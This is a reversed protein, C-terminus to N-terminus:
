LRENQIIASHGKFLTSNELYDSIDKDINSSFNLLSWFGGTNLSYKKENSGRLAVEQLGYFLISGIIISLIKRNKKVKNNHKDISDNHSQSLIVKM